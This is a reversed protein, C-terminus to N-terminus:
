KQGNSRWGGSAAVEAIIEFDLIFNFEMKQQNRKIKRPVFPRSVSVEM